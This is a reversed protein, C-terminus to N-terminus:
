PRSPSARSLAAVAALAAGAGVLIGVRIFIRRVRHQQAPAIVAGAPRSATVGSAKEYPAAATGVAPAPSNAQSSSQGSEGTNGAQPNQPTQAVSDAGQSDPSSEAVHPAAQPGNQRPAAAVPMALLLALMSAVLREAWSTKM